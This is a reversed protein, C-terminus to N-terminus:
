IIIAPFSMKTLMATRGNPIDDKEFLCGPVQNALSYQQAAQTYKHIVVTDNLMNRTIHRLIVLVIKLGNTCSFILYRM